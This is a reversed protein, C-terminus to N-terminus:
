CATRVQAEDIVVIPRRGPPALTNDLLVRRVEESAIFEASCIVLRPPRNRMAAEFERPSLQNAALADIGYLNCDSILQQAITTLPSIVLVTSGPPMLLGTVLMPLSKGYGTPLAGLIHCTETGNTACAVIDLQFDRLREPLAPHHHERLSLYAAQIEGRQEEM